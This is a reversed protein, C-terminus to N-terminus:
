WYAGQVLYYATKTWEETVRRATLPHRWWHALDLTDPVPVSRLSLGRHSYAAAFLMNARRSHFSETVLLASHLGHAVLMDASRNAEEITSDPPPDDIVLLASDPIEPAAVGAHHLALWTTELGHTHIPENSVVLLNAYGADRLQEAWVLRNPANGALVVIADTAVAPESTILWSGANVFCVSLLAVVVVAV